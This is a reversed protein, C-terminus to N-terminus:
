QSQHLCVDILERVRAAFVRVDPQTFIGVATGPIRCVNFAGTTYDRWGLRPDDLIATSHWEDAAIVHVIDCAFPKPVYSRGAQTNPHVHADVQKEIPELVIELKAKLLTRRKLSYMKKRLLTRLVQFHLRMEQPSLRREGRVIAVAQRVYNRWNRLVKPYGPAPAEILVIKGIDAGRAALQRAVEFAVMGGYCHGGVIYPGAPQIARIEDVFREAIQEVTYIGRENLPRPDRVVYFPQDDGLSVALHRFYNPNDDAGPFCFFPIRSGRPQFPVVASGNQEAEIPLDRADLLAAMRALTPARWLQSISIQKGFHSEILTILRTTDLSDAGLEFFNDAAGVPWTDLVERWISALYLETDTLPPEFERSSCAGDLDHVPLAQYDIKGNGTLPM